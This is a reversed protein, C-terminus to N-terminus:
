DFEDIIVERLFNYWAQKIGYYVDMPISGVVFASMGKLITKFSMGATNNKLKTLGSSYVAQHSNRGATIKDVGPFKTLGWAIFGDFASVLIIEGWTAESSGYIKDLTMGIGTTLLGTLANALPLNKTAAFVAGGIAGGLMAGAYTQWNSFSWENFDFRHVIINTVVDSIVQGAVGTVAGVLLGVGIAALLSRGSPDSFNVPDNNCYAYLNLGNPTNPDLYATDDPSIFRRWEPNYYRANLYYLGTERDYYYGRYRIPNYNSFNNSVLTKTTCNGWADYIYSAVKTGASNYLAIVDGKINRDFYFSETTGNYTQVAGIINSEDYLYTIDRTNTTGSIYKEICYERVLRGSNDYTYTTNYTYSYDSTSAPNPDYTYSKSLRRGYADYNFECNEYLSGPQQAAGRYVRSLKGKNWAYSKGNYYTPCGNTDYSIPINNFKVLRDKMTSDYAHTETVNINSITETTYALTDCGIINGISNYKFIFTKDLAKNNEQILRGFADYVYTTPTSDTIPANSEKTIRGMADYGYYTASGSSDVFSKVRTSEYNINRSFVKNGITHTKQTLRKYGDFTNVTQAKAVTDNGIFQKFSKVRGSKIAGNDDYNIERKVSNNMANFTFTDCILRDRNDYDLTEETTKTGSSNFTGIKKILDKDYGFKTTENTTKDKSEALKADLGDHGYKIYENTYSNVIPNIDYVNEKVDDIKILRGYKDFSSVQSYIASNLGPYGTTIKKNAEDYNHEEISAGNKSIKSLDDTNSYGFNYGLGNISMSALKGSSHTFSTIIDNAFKREKLVSMDSDYSDKIVTNDPMTVSKTGGWKKDVTYITSKGYEDVNTIITDGSDDTGISTTRIYLDDVYEETVIGNTREYNITIGDENTSSIVDLFRDCTQSNATFSSGNSTVINETVINDSNVSIRSIYKDNSKIYRMGLDFQDLSIYTGNVYVTPAGTLTIVNRCNNYYFLGSDIGKMQNTKYKMLDSIIIADYLPDMNSALHIFMNGAIKHEEGTSKNILISEQSQHFTVRLDKFEIDNGQAVDQITVQDSSTEFRLAFFRWQNTQQILPLAYSINNIKIEYDNDYVPSKVWGSLIYYGTDGNERLDGVYVPAPYNTKINGITVGDAFKVTVSDFSNETRYTQVTGIYRGNNYDNTNSYFEPGTEGVEYSYRVTSTDPQLRVVVGDHNKVDLYSVDDLIYNIYSPAKYEISDIINDGKCYSVVAKDFDFNIKKCYSISADDNDVVNVCFDIGSLELSYTVGSYHSITGNNGSFSMTTTCVDTNNCNYKISSLSDNTYDLVIKKTTKYAITTLKNGSYTYSLIKSGYKNYSAKISGNSHYEEKSYDPYEVTYIYDIIPQPFIGDKLDPDPPIILNETVKIIRQSNDDFTYVNGSKSITTCKGNAEHYSVPSGNVITLRKSLNLKYGPAIFFLNDDKNEYNFILSLNIANYIDSFSLLPLEYIYNTTPLDLQIQGVNYNKVYNM